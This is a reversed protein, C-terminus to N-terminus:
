NVEIEVPESKIKYEYREGNKDYVAFDAGAVVSYRGAKEVKIKYEDQRYEDGGKLTQRMGINNTVKWGTVETGNADYVYVHALPSSHHIQIESNTLNRLSVQVIFEEGENIPTSPVTVNTRFDSEKPLHEKTCGAVVLLSIIMLNLVIFKRM